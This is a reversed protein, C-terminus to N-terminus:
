WEWKRYKRGWFRGPTIKHIAAMVVAMLANVLWISANIVYIFIPNNWIKKPKSM